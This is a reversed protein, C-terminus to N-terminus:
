VGMIWGRDRCYAARRELEEKTAERSAWNNNPLQYWVRKPFITWPPNRTVNSM